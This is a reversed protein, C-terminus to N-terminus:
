EVIDVNKGCSNSSSSPLPDGTLLGDSPLLTSLSHNPTSLTLIPVTLEEEEIIIMSMTPKEEGTTEMEENKRGENRILEKTVKGIEKENNEVYINNNINDNTNIDDNFEKNNINNNINDNM